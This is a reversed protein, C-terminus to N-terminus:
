WRRPTTSATVRGPTSSAIWSVSVAATWTRSMRATPSIPPTACTHSSRARRTMPRRRDPPPWSKRSCRARRPTEPEISTYTALLGPPYETGAARLRNATLMTPDDPNSLDAPPGSAYLELLWRAPNPWIGHEGWGPDPDREGRPRSPNSRRALGRHQGGRSREGQLERDRIRVTDLPADLTGALLGASAGVNVDATQSWSWTNGILQDYAVARWKVLPSGPPM